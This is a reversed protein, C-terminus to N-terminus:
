DLTKFRNRSETRGLTECNPRIEAFWRNEGWSETWSFPREAALPWFYTLGALQDLCPSSVPGPCGPQSVMPEPWSPRTPWAPFHLGTPCLRRFFVGFVLIRCHPADSISVWSSVPIKPVQGLLLRRFVCMTHVWKCSHKGLLLCCSHLWVAKLFLLCVTQFVIWEMRKTALPFFQRLCCKILFMIGFFFFSFALLCSLSFSSLILFYILWHEEPLLPLGQTGACSAQCSYLIAPARCTAWNKKWSCESYCHRLAKRGRGGGGGGGLLLTM